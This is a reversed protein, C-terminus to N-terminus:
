NSNETERGVGNSDDNKVLLHPGRGQLNRKKIGLQSRSGANANENDYNSDNFAFSSPSGNPKFWPYWRRVNSDCVDPKWGENLAEVIVVMKQYAIDNRTLGLKMLADENYPQRGLEACADEYSKVRDKIDGSKKNTKKIVDKLKEALEVLKCMGDYQEETLEILAM